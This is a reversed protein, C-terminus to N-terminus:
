LIHSEFWLLLLSLRFKCTYVCAIACSAPQWVYYILIAVWSPDLTARCGVHAMVLYRNPQVIYTLGSLLLPLVYCLVVDRWWERQIDEKTKFIVASGSNNRLGRGVSLICALGRMVLMIALSAGITCSILLKVEIDCVYRGDFWTSSDDSFWILSNILLLLNHLTVWFIVAAAAQNQARLQWLLPTISFIIAFVCLIPLLTGQDFM